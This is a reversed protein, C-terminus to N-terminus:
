PRPGACVDTWHSPNAPLGDVYYWGVGNFWGLWVPESADKDFLQVTVDADPPSAIPVWTVTETMRM